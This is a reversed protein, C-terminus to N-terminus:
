YDIGGVVSILMEFYWNHQPNKLAAIKNAHMNLTKKSRIKHMHPVIHFSKTQISIKCRGECSSWSIQLRFLAILHKVQFNTSAGGCQQNNTHVRGWSDEVRNNEMPNKQAGARSTNKGRDIGDAELHDPKSSEQVGLQSTQRTGKEVKQAASRKKKHAAMKKPRPKQKKHAKFGQRLEWVEGIEHNGGNQPHASTKVTWKPRLM